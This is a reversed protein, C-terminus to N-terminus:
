TPRPKSRIRAKRVPIRNANASAQLRERLSIIVPVTPVPAVSAIAMAPKPQGVQTTGSAPVAPAMTIPLLRGRSPRSNLIKDNAIRSVASMQSSRRNSLEGSACRIAAYLGGATASM